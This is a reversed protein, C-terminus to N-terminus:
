VRDRSGTSGSSRCYEDMREVSIMERETETLAGLLGTLNGIATRWAFLAVVFIESNTL